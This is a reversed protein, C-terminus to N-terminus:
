GENGIAEILPSVANQLSPTRTTICVAMHWGSCGSPCWSPCSVTAAGWGPGSSGTRAPSFGTRAPAAWPEDSWRGASWCAPPVRSPVAWAETRVCLRCLVTPINLVWKMQTQAYNPRTRYTVLHITATPHSAFLKAEEKNLQKKKGTCYWNVVQKLNDYLKMNHVLPWSLM